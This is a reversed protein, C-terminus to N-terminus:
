GPAWIRLSAMNKLRSVTLCGSHWAPEGPMHWPKKPNQLLQIPLSQLSIVSETSQFTPLWLLAPCSWISLKGPKDIERSRCKNKQQLRKEQLHRSYSQYESLEQPLTDFLDVLDALTIWNWGCCSIRSFCQLFVDAHTKQGNLHMPKALIVQMSCALGQQAISGQPSVFGTWPKSQLPLDKYRATKCWVGVTQLVFCRFGTNRHFEFFYLFVM